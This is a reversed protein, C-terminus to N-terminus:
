LSKLTHHGDGKDKNGQDFCVQVMRVGKQCGESARRVSECATTSDSSMAWLLSWTVM